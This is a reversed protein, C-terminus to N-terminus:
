RRGPRLMRLEGGVVRYGLSANLARIGANASENMTTLGTAGRRAALQHLAQKAARSLGRGRYAPRTGTFVVGWESGGPGADASMSAASGVMDGDLVLMWTIDSFVRSFAAHNPAWGMEQAGPFDGTDAILGDLGISDAEPDAGRIVKLRMGSPLNPEPLGGRLDIRSSIGRTVTAFGWRNGVALAHEDREPLYTLLPESGATAVVDSWLLSGVGRGRALPEVIVSTARGPQLPEIVFAMGVPRGDDLAVRRALFRGVRGAAFVRLQADSTSPDWRRRLGIWWDTDQEQWDRLTLM